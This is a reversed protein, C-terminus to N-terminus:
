TMTDTSCKRLSKHGHLFFNALGTNAGKVICTSTKPFYTVVSSNMRDVSILSNAISEELEIELINSSKLTGTYECEVKSLEKINKKYNIIDEEFKLLNEVREKQKKLENINVLDILDETYNSTKMATILKKIRAKYEERTTNIEEKKEKLKKHLERVKKVNNSLKMEEIVDKKHKDVFDCLEDADKHISAKCNNLLESTDITELYKQLHLAKNVASKLNILFNANETIYSGKNQIYEFHSYHITQVCEDCIFTKCFLCYGNSIRCHHISNGIM